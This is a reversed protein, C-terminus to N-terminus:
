PLWPRVTLVDEGRWTGASGTVTRGGHFGRAISSAEDAGVLLGRAIPASVNGMAIEVSDQDDVEAGLPVEWLSEDKADETRLVIIGTAADGCLDLERARDRLIVLTRDRGDLARIKAEVQALTPNPEEFRKGRVWWQLIPREESGRAPLGRDRIRRM